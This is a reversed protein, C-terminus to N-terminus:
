KRPVRRRDAKAAAAKVASEQDEEAWVLQYHRGLPPVQFAPDHEPDPYAPVLEELDEATIDRFYDNM